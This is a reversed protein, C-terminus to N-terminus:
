PRMGWQALLTAEDSGSSAFWKGLFEGASLCSQWDETPRLTRPRRKLSGGRLDGGQSALVGHGLGYLIAQSTIDRLARVRTSLDVRILPADRLWGAMSAATTRPLAERTPRHLACSLILYAFTLPMAADAKSAYGVCAKNLVVSCFAPNFLASAEADAFAPIQSPDVATSM